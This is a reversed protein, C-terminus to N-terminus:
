AIATAPSAATATTLRSAARPDSTCNSRTPPGDGNPIADPARTAASGNYTSGTSARGPGAPRGAGSQHFSSRHRVCRRQGANM